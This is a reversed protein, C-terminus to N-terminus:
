VNAIHHEPLDISCQLSCQISQPVPERSYRGGASFRGHCKAATHSTPSGFRTKTRSTALLAAWSPDPGLWSPIAFTIPRIWSCTVLLSLARLATVANLARDRIGGNLVWLCAIAAFRDIHSEAPRDEGRVRQCLRPDARRVDRADPRRMGCASISLHAFVSQCAPQLVPQTRREAVLRHLM